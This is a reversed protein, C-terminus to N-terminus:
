QGVSLPRYGPARKDRNPSADLRHLWGADPYKRVAGSSIRPCICVAGDVSVMCWDPKGCVPCPKAKTARRWKNPDLNM